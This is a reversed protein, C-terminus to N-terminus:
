TPETGGVAALISQGLEAIGLGTTSSVLQVQDHDLGLSKALAASQRSQQMRGLKDAKTLVALTPRESESLLAQIERDQESPEHRLDLLWVVGALKLRHRLYGM